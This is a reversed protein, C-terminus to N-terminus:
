KGGKDRAAGLVKLVDDHGVIGAAALGTSIEMCRHIMENLRKGERKWRDIEPGDGALREREQEAVAAKNRWEIEDQVVEHNLKEWRRLAGSM